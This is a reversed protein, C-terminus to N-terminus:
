DSGEAPAALQPLVERMLWYITNQEMAGRFWQSGPGRAYIPVDEGAHTEAPGPVASEQLYNPDGTAVNTLDPRGRAVGQYGRGLHPFLKPGEPQEGSAGPYGPGNAYSLTTYPLGLADLIPRGAEDRALGLIPNGRAPYGVINFTHSHDATVIILTDDEATLEAAVAVADSLAIADTLARYANGAHHGHDVRGAEVLLFFGDADDKLATVAARTMAALSPEGAADRPRDAEFEMHDAEFLGLVPGPATWDIADFQAQNWLYRGDGHRAQWQEILDRGDRRLGNRFGEEPDPQASTMFMTRGGGLVVDIGDGHAFEVLQRAIDRCGEAIRAPPMRADAEWDRDTVHAYAAAPTAHTIRATSVIGTAMGATEAAELLTQAEHGSAESCTARAPVQDIAIAGGRSKVGTLMATATGASESTQMDVTYTKSLATAPFREFSLLNEEGSEGRLQGQLIHAATITSIGMGDGIFLIVNRARTNTSAPRQLETVRRRGEARWFEPTEPRIAIARDRADASATGLAPAMASAPAAADAALAPVLPLTAGATCLGAFLGALLSARRLTVPGVSVDSRSVSAPMCEPPPLFDPKPM